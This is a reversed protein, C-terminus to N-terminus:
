PFEHKSVTFASLINLKAEVGINKTRKHVMFVNVEIVILWSITLFVCSHFSQNM